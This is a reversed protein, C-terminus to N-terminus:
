ILNPMPHHHLIYTYKMNQEICGPFYTLIEWQFSVDERIFRTLDKMDVSIIKAM